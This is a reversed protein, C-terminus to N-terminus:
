RLEVSQVTGDPYYDIRKIRPCVQGIMHWYGCYVCRDFGAVTTEGSQVAAEFQPTEERSRRLNEAAEALTSPPEPFASVGLYDKSAEAM